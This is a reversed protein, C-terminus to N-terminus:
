KSNRCGCSAAHVINGSYNGDMIIYKHGDLEVIKTCVDRGHYVWPEAAKTEQSDVIKECGCAATALAVAVIIKKMTMQKKGKM